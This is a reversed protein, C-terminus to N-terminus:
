SILVRLDPRTSIQSSPIKPMNGYGAEVITSSRRHTYEFDHLFRMCTPRFGLPIICSRSVRFIWTGTGLVIKFHSLDGVVKESVSFLGSLKLGPLRRSITFVCVTLRICSSKIHNGIFGYPWVWIISCAHCSEPSLPGVGKRKFKNKPNYSFFFIRGSRFRTCSTLLCRFRAHTKYM